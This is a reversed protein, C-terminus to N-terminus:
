EYRLVKTPDLNAARIAPGLGASVAILLFLLSVAAFSAPDTPSIHFLYSTVFRTLTMAVGIGIIVGSLALRLGQTLVIQWISAQSAGLARRIGFERIRQTTSYSILGYVGILALAFAVSAFFALVQTLIRRPGIQGDVLEQMPRIDSVPQAPNLAQVARRVTAAFQMPNKNVRVALMATPPKAQAFSVYVSRNWGLKDISQHANAVIGIVEAPEKIVGGVLLRQGIPNQGAPYDPWFLRALNEDIIAVRQTGERDHETFTRGRRLPIRLTEFYDPSVIFIAALPRQNLLLRPQSAGQVPTGPYSTMPLTLSVSAHEIGPSSTLKSLLDEFFSLSNTSPPLAIRATLLNHSDFGLNQSRLRLISEILLTTGILLAVSLAIQGIVLVSRLSFRRSSGQSIRLVAMLDVRSASLSPAFGFLIATLLSLAVAFALVASDFQIENARPLDIGAFQRIAFLSVYALFAGAIGGLMSLLLSEALLHRMLRMRSAGLASRIAFETSRAAARALLLSALNACAILLVLWVAGFLLWLELQVSHVITQQLPTAVPPTKTKADLMAPHDKAYNAQLVNIEATAQELTVGPSLRGFVTLFPSLARSQPNFQPSEEPRTLWVDIGAYPFAFNPPLVGSVTYARGALDITQGVIHLDSSFRRQWLNSSILLSNDSEGFGRGLLPSVGLIELFNGSVRITKLLEPVGRGTLALDEEMAHAGIASFDHAGSTIDAFHAPSAGGSILVLRDPNRYGLPKLLVAHIVSFCAVNAGIGLGLTLVAATLFGPAAWLSQFIRM